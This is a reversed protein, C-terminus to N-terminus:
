VTEKAICDCAWVARKKTPQSEKLEWTVESRIEWSNVGKTIILGTELHRYDGSKIKKTKM